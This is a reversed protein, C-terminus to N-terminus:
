WVTELFASAATQLHEEFATVWIHESLFSNKSIERFECSFM